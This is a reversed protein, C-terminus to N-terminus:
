EKDLVEIKAVKVGFRIAEQKDVMWVDIRDSYRTHMRDRVLFVRQGFLDPIRVKTGFPLFNAAISDEVGYTCLNFGNATICPSSDCQAAESNYATIVRFSTSIVEWDNNQPLHFSVAKATHSVFPSYNLENTSKEADFYFLEPADPQQNEIMSDAALAPLHFLSFSFFLAVLVTFVINRAQKPSIIRKSNKKLAEMAIKLSFNFLLSNNQCVFFGIRVEKPLIPIKM